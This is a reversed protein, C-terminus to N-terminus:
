VVWILGPKIQPMQEWLVELKGKWFPDWRYGLSVKFRAHIVMSPKHTSSISGMGADWVHWFVSDLQAWAGPSIIYATVSIGPPSIVHATQALCGQTSVALCCGDRCVLLRGDWGWYTLVRTGSELNHCCFLIDWTYATQDQTRKHSICNWCSGAPSWSPQPPSPLCQFFPPAFLATTTLVRLTM